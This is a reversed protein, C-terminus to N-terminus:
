FKRFFIHNMGDQKLKDAIENWKENKITTNHYEALKTNYLCPNGEVLDILEDDTFLFSFFQNFYLSNRNFEYLNTTKGVLIKMFDM